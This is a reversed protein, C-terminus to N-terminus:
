ILQGASAASYRDTAGVVTATRIVQASDREAPQYGDAERRARNDPNHLGLAVVTLRPMRSWRALSQLNLRDTAAPPGAAGLGATM